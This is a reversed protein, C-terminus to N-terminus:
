DFFVDGLGSGRQKSQTEFRDLDVSIAAATVTARQEATLKDTAFAIRFTDASTFMERGLGGWKKSVEGLQQGHAGILTFRWVRWFSQTLWAYTRGTADRLDYRTSFWAFRRHVSGVRRCDGTEIFLDSFLWYFPRQFRLVLSRSANWVNAEFPRHTKFFLRAMVAGFGTGHEAVHGVVRGDGTLLDYKNRTEWDTFIELWEKRQKVFLERFSGFMEGMTASSPLPSSATAAVAAHRAASAITQAQGLENADLFIGGCRECTDVLLARNGVFPM